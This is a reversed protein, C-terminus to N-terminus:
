KQVGMSVCMCSIENGEYLESEQKKHVDLLDGMLIWLWVAVNGINIILTFFHM